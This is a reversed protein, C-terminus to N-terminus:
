EDDDSWEITRVKKKLAAKLPSKAASPPLANSNGDHNENPSSAAKRKGEVSKKAVVADGPSAAEEGDGADSGSGAGSPGDSDNGSADSSEGDSGEDESGSEGESQVAV